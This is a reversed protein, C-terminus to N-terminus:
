GGKEITEMFHNMDLVYKVFPHGFDTDQLLEMNQIVCHGGIKGKPPDLNYRVNQPQCNYEVLDNYDQNYRKVSGYPFGLTDAVDKCYRAWEINIGYIALSQLKLFETIESKPACAVRLGAELFFALAIGDNERGGMWRNHLRISDAMNGHQGEIPSHIAGLKRCTGVPVTSFVITVKPSFEFQYDKVIKIFKESYPISVLMLDYQGAADPAKLMMMPDHITIEHDRSFIEYLGKGVEGYGILVAKM